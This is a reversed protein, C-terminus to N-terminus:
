KSALPPAESADAWVPLPATFTHLKEDLPHRFEIQHAHLCLPADATSGTQTEGHQRNPLYAQDGVIPLGLEWLHVRIQNTRGTLPRAEILATGDSLRALVTFETRAALGAVEDITRSGAVGAEASIPADCAFTDAAPHGQVRAVYRKRVLGRDFQAQVIHATHKTKALIAVGTTNSDLRHCLRPREPAFVEGVIFTLTNRNFRGSPHMPLPAPKNVVVLADDEWLFEIAANVDPECTDPLCHLYREGARVPHDATVAELNTRVIRGVHLADLWQQAPVHDFMATLVTAIAQRDYELGIKIPRYNDYPGKGPLPSIVHRLARQRQAVVEVVAAASQLQCARCRPAADHAAGGDHSEIVPAQCSICRACQAPALAPDLGVRQDFVFCDGDYHANGCDEFYKLIGGDLQYVNAFGQDILFPAAKECRIGGTCFSVIVQDKMTAPLGNVAEPFQRFHDVGIAHANRFTGLKVEYDNRTDLLVVDRGEDLWAKLQAPAIRPAPRGIPDITTIGFAIIEKKIKVLMRRFPQAASLSYKAKLDRLGPITRLESLLEDVAGRDGAVFLNVGETSLLITGRLQATRCFAQLRLRLAPLEGLNAFHYAAANTVLLPPELGSSHSVLDANM